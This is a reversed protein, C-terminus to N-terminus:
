QQHVMTWTVGERTFLEPGLNLWRPSAFLIPQGDRTPDRLEFECLHSLAQSTYKAFWCAITDQNPQYKVEFTARGEADKIDALKLMQDPQTFNYSTLWLAIVPVPCASDLEINCCGVSPTTVFGVPAGILLAVLSTTRLARLFKIKYM